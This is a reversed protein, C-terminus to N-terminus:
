VFFEVMRHCCLCFDPLQATLRCYIFFIFSSWFCYNVLSLWGDWHLFLYAQAGAVVQSSLLQPLFLVVEPLKLFFYNLFFPHDTLKKQSSFFFLGGVMIFCHMTSPHGLIGWTRWFLNQNQFLFQTFFSWACQCYVFCFVTLRSDQPLLPLFGFLFPTCVAVGTDGSM